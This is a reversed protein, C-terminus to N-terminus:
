RLVINLIMNTQMSFWINSLICSKYQLYKKVSEIFDSLIMSSKVIDYYM